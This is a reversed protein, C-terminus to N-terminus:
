RPKRPVGNWGSGTVTSTWRSTNIGGALVEREVEFPVIVRSRIRRLARPDGTAAFLALLPGTNIILPKASPM